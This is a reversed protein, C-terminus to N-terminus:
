RPTEDLSANDALRKQEAAESEADKAARRSEEKIIAELSDDSAEADEADRTRALVPLPDVFQWAPLSSLATSLLVGGRVLWAVYGVSLGTTVAVGSGVASQHLITANNVGDRMRDLSESFGDSVLVSRLESSFSDLEISQLAIQPLATTVLAAPQVVLSQLLSQLPNAVAVGVSDTNPAASATAAETSDDLATAELQDDDSVDEAGQDEAEGEDAVEETM